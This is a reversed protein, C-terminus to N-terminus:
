LFESPFAFSASLKDSHRNHNWHLVSQLRQTTFVPPDVAHSKHPCPLRSVTILWQGLRGSPNGLVSDSLGGIGPRIQMQGFAQGLAPARVHRHALFQIHSPLKCKQDRTTRTHPRGALSLLVPPATYNKNGGRDSLSEPLSSNSHHIDPRCTSGAASLAAKPKTQNKQDQDIQCNNEKM